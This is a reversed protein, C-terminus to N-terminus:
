RGEGAPWAGAADRDAVLRENLGAPTPPVLADCDTVRFFLPPDGRDILLMANVPAFADENAKELLQPDVRAAPPLQEIWPCKAGVATPVEVAVMVILSLALTAGWSIV